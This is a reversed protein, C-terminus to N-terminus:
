EAAYWKLIFYVPYLPSRLLSSLYIYPGTNEETHVLWIHPRHISAYPHPQQFCIDVSIIVHFTYGTSMLLYLFAVRHDLDYMQNNQREKM